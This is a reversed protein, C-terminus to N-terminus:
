NNIKVISKLVKARQVIPDDQREDAHIHHAMAKGEQDVCVYSIYGSVIREEHVLFEIYVLLSTKSALAIRGRTQIISGLDIPKRFHMEHINVCVIHDAPIFKAVTLLGTEVFWEAARGAFLTHHHNLDENKVFRYSEFHFM